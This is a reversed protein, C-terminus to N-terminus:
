AHEPRVADVQHVHEEGLAYLAILPNVEVGAWELEQGDILTLLPRGSSDAIEVPGVLRGTTKQWPTEEANM